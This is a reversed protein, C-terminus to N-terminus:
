AEMHALPSRRSQVVSAAAHGAIGCGAQENASGVLADVNEGIKDDGCTGQYRGGYIGLWRSVGSAEVNLDCSSFQQRCAIHLPQLPTRCAGVLAIM